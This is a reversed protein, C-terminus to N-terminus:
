NTEGAYTNNSSSINSTILVHLRYDSFLISISRKKMSIYFFPRVARIMAALSLLISTTFASSPISPTATLWCSATLMYCMNSNKHRKGEHTAQSAEYCQNYQIVHVSM